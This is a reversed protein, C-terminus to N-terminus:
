AWERALNARLVEFKWVEVLKAIMGFGLSVKGM